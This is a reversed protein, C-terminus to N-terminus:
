NSVGGCTGFTSPLDWDGINSNSCPATSPCGSQGPTVTPDCLQAQGTGACSSLCQAAFQNAGSPEYICCVQNSPCSAAGTCALGAAQPVGSDSAAAVPCISGSICAFSAPNANASICCVQAPVVCTAGGCPISRPGGESVSGGDVADAPFVLSGTGGCACLFMVCARALARARALWSPRISGVHNLTGEAFFILCARV